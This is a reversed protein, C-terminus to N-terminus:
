GRERWSFLGRREHLWPYQAVMRRTRTLRYALLAIGTIVAADIIFGTLSLLDGQFLAFTLFRDAGALLLCYLILQWLPRWTRALAEGTLYGAGGMILVTLGLFIGPSTGLLNVM